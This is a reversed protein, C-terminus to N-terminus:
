FAATPQRPAVARIDRADDICVAQMRGPRQKALPCVRWTADVAHLEGPTPPTAAARVDPPLVEATDANRAGDFVGLLRKSGAPRIRFTPAGNAVFLRGRVTFCPGVVLKSERCATAAAPAPSAALTFVACAALALRM